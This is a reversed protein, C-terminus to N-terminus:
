VPLYGKLFFIVQQSCRSVAVLCVDILSVGSHLSRVVGADLKAIKSEAVEGAVDVAEVRAIAAAARVYSM